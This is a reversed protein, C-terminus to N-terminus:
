LYDEMYFIVWVTETWWNTIKLALRMRKDHLLYLWQM